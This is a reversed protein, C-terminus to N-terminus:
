GNIDAEFLTYNTGSINSCSINGCGIANSIENLKLKHEASCNLGAIIRSAHLGISSEQVNIGNTNSIPYLVRYEEEHQWSHHKMCFQFSFITRLFELDANSTQGAAIMEKISIFINTMLSAIPIRKPEYSVAYLKDSKLVDYEVCFGRHNNSYYAWMPLCDPAKASLSVLAFQKRLGDLLEELWSIVQAPYGLSELKKRDIFMCQFEYPDNLTAITSFWVSRDRLTKFKLDNDESLDTLSIFKILKDPITTKRYEEAEIM